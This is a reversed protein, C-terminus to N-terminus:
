RGVGDDLVGNSGGYNFPTPAAASAPAGAPASAAFPSPAAPVEVIVVDSESWQGAPLPPQHEPVSDGLVHHCVAFVAAICGIGIMGVLAPLFRRRPRPAACRPCHRATSRLPTDCVECRTVLPWRRSAELRPRNLLQDRYWQWDFLVGTLIPRVPPGSRTKRSSRHVHVHVEIKEDERADDPADTEASEEPVEVVVRQRRFTAQKSRRAARRM